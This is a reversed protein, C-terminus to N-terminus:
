CFVAEQSTCLVTIADLYRSASTVLSTEATKMNRTVLSFHESVLATIVIRVSLTIFAIAQNECQPGLVREKRNIM